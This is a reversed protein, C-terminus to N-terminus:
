RCNCISRRSIFLKRLASLLRSPKLQFHSHRTIGARTHLDKVEILSFPSM